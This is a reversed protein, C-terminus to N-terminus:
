VLYVKVIQFSHTKFDNVPWVPNHSTLLIISYVGYVTFFFTKLFGLLNIFHGMPIKEGTIEHDEGAVKNGKQWLLDCKILLFGFAFYKKVLFGILQQSLCFWLFFLELALTLCPKGKTLWNLMEYARFLSHCAFFYM